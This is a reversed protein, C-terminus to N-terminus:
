APSPTTTGQTAQGTGEAEDYEVSHDIHQRNPIFYLAILTVVVCFILYIAVPVTSHFAGFLATAILPAPGGAVVSALQYGIAAGSFRMRGTFNEAILAAQPGYQLDHPILSLIVALIVVAGVMSQLMAFYPFAFVAILVAGVAYLRRRGFRDSFHGALPVTALSVIAALFVSVLMFNNSFKLDKVGYALVFTTFIYFPAQESMRVLASLIIERWNRRIVEAVPQ